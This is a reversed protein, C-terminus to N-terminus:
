SGKSCPELGSAGQPGPAGKQKFTPFQIISNSKKRWVTYFLGHHLMNQGCSATCTLSSSGKANRCRVYPGCLTDMPGVYPGLGLPRGWPANKSGKPDWPGFWHPGSGIHGQHGLGSGIHGLACTGFWHLWHLSHPGLPWPGFCGIRCQLGPGSGICGICGIRGWPGPGSGLTCSHHISSRHVVELSVM